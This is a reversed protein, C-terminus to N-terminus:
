QTSRYQHAACYSGHAEGGCFFFEETGPDGIPWRCHGHDLQAFTKRQEQPITTDEIRPPPLKPQRTISLPPLGMADRLGRTRHYRMREWRRKSEIRALRRMEQFEPSDNKQQSRKPLGLRHARGIISNRSYSTGFKENITKNITYLKVDLSNWLTALLENAEDPWAWQGNQYQKLNRECGMLSM